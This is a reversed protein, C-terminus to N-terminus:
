GSIQEVPLHRTNNHWELVREVLGGAHSAETVPVPQEFDILVTATNHLSLWPEAIGGPADFGLSARILHQSIWEHCVIGILIEQGLYRQKLGEIVRAGRAARAPDDEGNGRYWGTEDAGDPLVLRRSHALLESAGAGPYSRPHQPTGLYPGGCEYAELHGVIPLDLAEALPAATQVARVMLSSYLVDPAPQVGDIMARALQEAQAAGLQTLLPDPSRGEFSGTTAHLLNNTSEGHRIILLKM